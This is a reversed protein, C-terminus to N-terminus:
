NSSTTAYIALPIDNQCHSLMTASVLLIVPIKMSLQRKLDIRIDPRERIPFRLSVVAAPYALITKARLRWSIEVIRSGLFLDQQANESALSM